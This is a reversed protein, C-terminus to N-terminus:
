TGIFPKSQQKENTGSRMRTSKQHTWSLLEQIVRGEWRLLNWAVFSSLWINILLYISLHLWKILLCVFIHWKCVGPWWLIPIWPMWVTFKMFILSDSGSWRRTKFPFIELDWLCVL